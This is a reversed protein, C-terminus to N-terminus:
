IFNLHKENLSEISENYTATIMCNSIEEVEYSLMEGQTGPM